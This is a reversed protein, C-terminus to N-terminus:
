EVSPEADEEGEPLGLLTLSVKLKFACRIDSPEVNIAIAM